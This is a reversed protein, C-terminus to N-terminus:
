TRFHRGDPATILAHQCESSSVLNSGSNSIIGSYCHCCTRTKEGKEMGDQATILPCFCSTSRHELIGEM